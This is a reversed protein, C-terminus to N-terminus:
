DGGGVLNKGALPIAISFISGQGPESELTALGNHKRAVNRVIFLGLGSGRIGKHEQRRVREGREFLRKQDEPAIGYGNDRVALVLYDDRVYAQVWVKGGDPTYKVANEVLNMLARETMMEDINMIPVDSGIDAVLAIGKSTAVPSLTSVVKNIMAAPDCPERRIAYVDMMPDLRGADLVKEVLNTMDNISTTIKEIFKEQKENLPGVMSLMDLFGKAATMPSRIDHSVTHLFNSMNESLRQFRTVDRLVLLWGKLTGNESRVEAVHPSFTRHDDSTFEIDPSSNAGALLFDRLSQHEIVSEFPKGIVEAAKANFLLEAAPNFVRILYKKDVIIIPETDTELLATLQETGTRAADESYSTNIAIAAQLALLNLIERQAETLQPAHDFGLWLTAHQVKQLPLPIAILATLVSTLRSLDLPTLSTVDVVELRGELQCYDHILLDAAVLAEQELGAAVTISEASRELILRASSAQTVVAAAELASTLTVPLDSGAAVHQAIEALLQLQSTHQHLATQSDDKFTM